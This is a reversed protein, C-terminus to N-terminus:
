RPRPQTDSSLVCTNLCQIGTDSHNTTAGGPLECIARSLYGLVRNLWLLTYRDRGQNSNKSM